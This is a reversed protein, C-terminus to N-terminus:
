PKKNSEKLKLVEYYLKIEPFGKLRQRASLNTQKFKYRSGVRRKTEESVLIQNSKARCELRSAFNVVQGLVTIEDRNDTGLRGLLVKGSDIGCKLEIKVDRFGFHLHWLKLWPYKM